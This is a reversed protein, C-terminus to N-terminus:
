SLSLCNQTKPMPLFEPPMQVWLSYTNAFTKSMFQCSWGWKLSAKQLLSNFFVCTPSMFTLLRMPRQWGECILVKGHVKNHVVSGNLFWSFSYSILWISLLVSVGPSLWTQQKNKMKPYACNCLRWFQHIRTEKKSDAQININGRGNSHCIFIDLFRPGFPTCKLKFLTSQPANAERFGAGPKAVV